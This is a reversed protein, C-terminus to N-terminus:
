LDWPSEARRGTLPVGGDETVLIPDELRFGFGNSKGLRTAQENTVYIGPENTVVVGARLKEGNAGNLYPHEHTELGLGHGLRHTYYPGYGAEEVPVRSAADADRCTENPRMKEFAATQSRRVTQWVAMLEDSAVGGPPLMTRTVDSGYGHLTSGIDVLVFEGDQLIAGSKGGHPYAAQSGFLALAWYGEGVGARTFLARGAAVVDEQTIGLLLCGQLARLLQRTFANIGKMIAIEAETKVARLQKVDDSMPIVDVGVAQLGAAIMHRTHEDIMVKRKGEGEGSGLRGSELLVAYPDLEERWPIAAATVDGEFVMHQSEPNLRGTEFQPVLYSFRAASDLIMLYPRESLGFRSSINAYYTSSASPEAVFADVGAARLASALVSQRALFDARSIPPVDLLSVHPELTQWACTELVSASPSVSPAVQNTPPVPNPFSFIDLADDITGSFLLLILALTSTACILLWRFSPSPRSRNPPAQAQAPPPKLMTSAKANNM